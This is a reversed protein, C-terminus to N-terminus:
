PRPRILLKVHLLESPVDVQLTDEFTEVVHGALTSVRGFLNVAARDIGDHTAFTLDKNKFKLTISVLTTAGTVRVYDAVVDFPLPSSHVKEIALALDSFKLPPPRFLGVPQRAEPKVGATLPQESPGLTTHYNGCRCADVFEFVVDEGTGEISNYRWVERAYEAPVSANADHSANPKDAAPHKEIEDPEGFLIYVQGRDTRRGRIGAGFHENAYAIRQYHEEKFENEETEPTPDRMRWFADIFGERDEDNSLRKFAAKADNTIIWAADDELWTKYIPVGGDQRLVGPRAGTHKSPSRQMLLDLRQEASSGPPIVVPQQAQSPLLLALCSLLTSGALHVSLRFM